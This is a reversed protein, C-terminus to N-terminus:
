QMEIVKYIANKYIKAMNEITFKQTILKESFEGMSALRKPDSLAVEIKATLDKVSGDFYWGNKTDFMIDEETGDAHTYIIPLAVSMATNLGLGGLGPMVFLSSRYLKEALHRDEYIPGVFDVNSYIKLDAAIKKLNVEESGGGIIDLKARPFKKLIEAFAKLLVDVKKRPTLRGAFVIRMPDKKTNPNKKIEKYVTNLEKSDITNQAVSIKNKPIFRSYQLYKATHSSYPLFYDVRSLAIINRLIRLTQRPNLIEFILSILSSRSLYGDCGMWITKINNLRIYSLAKKNIMMRDLSSSFSIIVETGHDKITELINPHYLSSTPIFSTETVERLRVSKFPLGERVDKLGDIVKNDSVIVLLDFYKSLEVFFSVRYHAIVNTDFAVKPRYNSM